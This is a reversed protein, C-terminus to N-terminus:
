FHLTCNRKSVCPPVRRMVQYLSMFVRTKILVEETLEAFLRGAHERSRKKLHTASTFPINETFNLSKHSSFQNYGSDLCCEQNVILFYKPGVQHLVHNFISQSVKDAWGDQGVLLARNQNKILPQNTNIQGESLRNVCKQGPTAQKVVVLGFVVDVGKNCM